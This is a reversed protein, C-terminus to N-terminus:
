VRFGLYHPKFIILVGIVFLDRCLPRRQRCAAEKPADGLAQAELIKTKHASACLVLCLSLSLFLFLSLSLSDPSFVLVPDVHDARIDNQSHSKHLSFRCRSDCSRDPM